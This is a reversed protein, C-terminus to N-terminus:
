CGKRPSKSNEPPGMARALHAWHGSYPDGHTSLYGYQWWIIVWIYAVPNDWLRLACLSSCLGM